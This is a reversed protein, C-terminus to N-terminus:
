QRNDTTQQSHHVFGRLFRNGDIEKKRCEPLMAASQGLIDSNNYVMDQYKDNVKKGCVTIKMKDM